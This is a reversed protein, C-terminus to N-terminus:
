AIKDIQEDAKHKVFDLAIEVAIRLAREPLVPFEKVLQEVVWERMAPKEIARDAAQRVYDEARQLLEPPVLRHVVDLAKLIAQPISKFFALIKNM